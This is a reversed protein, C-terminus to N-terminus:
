GRAAPRDPEDNSRATATAAAADALLRGLTALNSRILRRGMVPILPTTWAFRRRPLGEISYTVLSAEDGAPAVAYGILARVLPGGSIEMTVSRGDQWDTIRGDLVSERGGFVRRTVFTTGVAPRGPTTQRVELVGDEWDPVKPFDILRAWVEGRPRDIQVTETFRFMIDVQSYRQVIYRLVIPGTPDATLAPTGPLDAAPWVTWM